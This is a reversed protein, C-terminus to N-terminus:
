HKELIPEVVVVVVTLAACAPWLQVVVAVGVGYNLLSRALELLYQGHVVAAAVAALLAVDELVVPLNFCM